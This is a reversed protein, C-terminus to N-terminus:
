RMWIAAAAAGIVAAWLLAKLLWESAERAERRMRMKEAFAAADAHIRESEEQARFAGNTQNM